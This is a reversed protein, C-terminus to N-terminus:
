SFDKFYVNSSKKGWMPTCWVLGMAFAVETDVVEADVVEMSVVEADAVDVDVVEVGAVEADVVEADAIEADAVEPDLVKACRVFKPSNIPSVESLVPLQL